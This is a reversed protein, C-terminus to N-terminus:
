KDREKNIAPLYFFASSIFIEDVGSKLSCYYFLERHGKKKLVIIRVKDTLACSVIKIIRFCYSLLKLISLFLRKIYLISIM